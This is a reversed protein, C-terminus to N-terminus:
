PLARYSCTMDKGRNWPSAKRNSRAAAPNASRRQALAVGGASASGVELSTGTLSAGCGSGAESTGAGALSVGELSPPADAPPPRSANVFQSASWRGSIHVRSYLGTHPSTSVPTRQMLAGQGELWCRVKPLAQLAQASALVM